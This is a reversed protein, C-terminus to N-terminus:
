DGTGRTAWNVKGFRLTPALRFVDLVYFHALTSSAPIVALWVKPVKQRLILPQHHNVRDGCVSRADGSTGM